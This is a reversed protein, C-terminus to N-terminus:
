GYEAYDGGVALVNPSYAPYYGPSGNDGTSAVFTVGTHGSPTTFYTDYSTEFNTEASGYSMSVVSVGPQRAAFQAAAYLDTSSNTNAEVLLINAQPAVAHAWEVDLAVEGFYGGGGTGPYNTGGTQNVKTFSPPNPLGFDQDFQYLDSGSFSPSGSSVFYPDNYPDIIAITQGAGSGAVAGGDFSIQNIGYAQRIEAPTHGYASSGGDSATVMLTPGVAHFASLLLRPELPEFFGRRCAHRKRQDVALSVAGNKRGQFLRGLWSM